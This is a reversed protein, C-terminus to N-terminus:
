LHFIPVLYQFPYALISGSPAATIPMTTYCEVL